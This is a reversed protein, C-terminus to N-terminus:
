GPVGADGEPTIRYMARVEETLQHESVPAFGRVDVGVNIMKERIKWAGHVHGCVLPLGDDFPRRDAYRDHDQSDGHYPLHALRVVIGGPLRHAHVVGTSVVGAFGAAKYVDVAKRWRKHRQWCSDHNGAVLTKRGNLRAVPALDRPSMAVDGLVWVTDRPQVVANWRDVIAANM